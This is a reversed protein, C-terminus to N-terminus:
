PLYLHNYLSILLIIFLVNVELLNLKIDPEDLCLILSFYTPFSAASRPIEVDDWELNHFENTEDGM